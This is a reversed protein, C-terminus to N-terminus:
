LRSGHPQPSRGEPAARQDEGGDGSQVSQEVHREDAGVLLGVRPRVDSGRVCEEVPRVRRRQLGAEVEDVRDAPEVDGPRSQRSLRPLRRLALCETRGPIGRVERQESLALHEEAVVVSRENPLGREEPETREEEHECYSAPPTLIGRQEGAHEIRDIRPRLVVDRENEALCECAGDHEGGHVRVRTGPLARRRDAPRSHTRERSPEREDPGHEDERCREDGEAREHTGARAAERPYGRGCGRRRGEEHRPQDPGVADRAARRHRDPAFAEVQQERCAALPVALSGRVDLSVGRELPVQVGDVPECRVRVLQQVIRGGVRPIERAGVLRQARVRPPEVAVAEAGLRM